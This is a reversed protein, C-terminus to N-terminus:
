QWREAKLLDDVQWQELWEKGYPMDLYAINSAFGKKYVLKVVSSRYKVYGSPINGRFHQCARAV